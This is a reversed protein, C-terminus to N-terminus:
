FTKRSGLCEENKTNEGPLIPVLEMMWGLLFITTDALLRLSKLLVLIVGLLVLLPLVLLLLVPMAWLFKLTGMVVQQVKGVQAKQVPNEKWTDSDNL